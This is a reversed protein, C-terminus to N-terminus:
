KLVWWTGPEMIFLKWGSESLNDMTWQWTWKVTATQKFKALNDTTAPWTCWLKSGIVQWFLSCALPPDIHPHTTNGAGSMFFQWSSHSHPLGEPLRYIIRKELYHVEVSQSAHWFSTKLEPANIFTQLITIGLDLSSSEPKPQLGGTGWTLEPPRACQRTDYWNDNCQSCGLLAQWGEM